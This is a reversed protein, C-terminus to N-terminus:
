LKNSLLRRKKYSVATTAIQKNELTIRFETSITFNAENEDKLASDTCDQWLVATRCIGPESGHFSRHTNETELKMCFVNCVKNVSVLVREAMLASPYQIMLQPTYIGLM